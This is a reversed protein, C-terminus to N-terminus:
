HHTFKQKTIQYNQETIKNCCLIRLPNKFKQKTQKWGYKSHSCSPLAIKTVYKTIAISQLGAWTCNIRLPLTCIQFSTFYSLVVPGVPDPMEEQFRWPPPIILHGKEEESCFEKYKNSWRLQWFSFRFWEQGKIRLM